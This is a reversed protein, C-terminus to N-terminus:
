NERRAVQKRRRRVFSAGCLAAIALLLNSSGPRGAALACSSHDSAAPDDTAPVEVIRVERGMPLTREPMRLGYFESPIAITPQVCTLKSPDDRSKTRAVFGPKCECTPTMNMNVCAGNEGCDVGVCPDPLVDGTPGKDGANLFSLREDVCSVGPQGYDTYGLSRATLGPACACAAVPTGQDDVTNRCMGLAGCPNFDCPNDVDNSSNQDCLSAIFPLERSRPVDGKSSRKFLPDYTMEEPSLRTYLRTMYPRTSILDTL